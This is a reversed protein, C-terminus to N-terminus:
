NEIKYHFSYAKIKISFHFPDIDFCPAYGEPIDVHNWKGSGPEGYAIRIKGKMTNRLCLKKKRFGEVESNGSYIVAALCIAAMLLGTYIKNM